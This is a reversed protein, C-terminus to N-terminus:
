SFSFVISDMNDHRTMNQYPLELKFCTPTLDELRLFSWLPNFYLPAGARSLFFLTMVESDVKVVDPPYLCEHYDNARITIDVSKM